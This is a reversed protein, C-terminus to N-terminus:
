EDAPVEIKWPGNVDLTAEPWIDHVAKLLSAVADVTQPLHVIVSLTDSM